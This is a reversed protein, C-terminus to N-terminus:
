NVGGGGRVGPLLLYKKERIAITPILKAFDAYTKEFYLTKEASYRLITLAKQFPICYMVGRMQLSNRANYSYHTVSCPLSDIFEIEQADIALNFAYSYACLEGLVIAPIENLMIKPPLSYGNTYSDAGIIGAATDIHTSQLYKTCVRYRNLLKPHTSYQLNQSGEKHKMWRYM